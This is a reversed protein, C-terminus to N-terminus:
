RDSASGAPTRDMVADSGVEGAHCVEARRDHRALVDSRWVSHLGQHEWRHIVCLDDTGESRFGMELTNRTLM